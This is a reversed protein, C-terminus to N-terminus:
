RSGCFPIEDWNERQLSLSLSLLVLVGTVCRIPVLCHRELTGKGKVGTVERGECNWLKLKSKSSADGGSSSFPCESVFVAESSKRRGMFVSHGLSPSPGARLGGAGVM